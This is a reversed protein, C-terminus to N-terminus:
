GRFKSLKASGWNRLEGLTKFPDSLDIEVGKEPTTGLDKLVEVASNRGPIATVGPGPHCGAGCLYLNEVPTRYDACGVMPRYDFMQEPM